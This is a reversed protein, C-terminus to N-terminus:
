ERYLYIVGPIEKPKGDLGVAKIIYYYTGRGALSGDNLYGNWGSQPDSWSFLCEGGLSLVVCTFSQFTSSEVNFVDNKGDGNPTLVITGQGEKLDKVILRPGYYSSKCAKDNTM